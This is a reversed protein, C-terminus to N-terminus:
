RRDWSAVEAAIAECSTAAAEPDVRATVFVGMAASGLMRARREIDATDLRGRAAAEALAGALASHLRRLHANGIRAADVDSAGLEAMTNVMFCGRATRDPDARLHEALSRYFEAIELLGASAQKIPGLLTEFVDERYSRLAADFLGRKSGYALYISSRNLGTRQELDGISTAEYGKAWFLDRAACLTVRDDYTKPRAM